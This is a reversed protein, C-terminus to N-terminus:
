ELGAKESINRMLTNLKNVGIPSSKFWPKNSDKATHNMSLYFHAEANQMSSPRKEFYVKYVFVPNRETPGNPTAFAKPKVARINRPEVGTRTKTQREKQINWINLETWMELM